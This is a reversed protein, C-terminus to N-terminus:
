GTPIISTGYGTPVITGAHKRGTPIVAPGMKLGTPVIYTGKKPGANASIEAGLSDRFPQAVAFSRLTM